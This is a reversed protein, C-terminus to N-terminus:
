HCEGSGSDTFEGGEVPIFEWQYRDPYLLLKLVGHTSSNRVESNPQVEGFKRLYAGGTGVVFERVGLPDASGEGDQPAFREYDHDHGNVVVEAGFEYAIKWFTSIAGNTGALGSSWRPHHWYLLSCRRTSNQLDQRLWLAEPSEKGCGVENCNTNLAVIHWDGLDYSYYGKLPEGAAAGFYAYYPRGKNTMYDHNGPSPHIRDKFRGWSPGFCNKYEIAAGLDYVNDGATFIAAQPERELLAATQEDGEEGCGAIDGAGILIVPTPTPTLTVTPSPLPTATSTPSPLPTPTLSPTVTQTPAPSPPIPTATPPLTTLFPAACGSALLLLLMVWGLSPARPNM